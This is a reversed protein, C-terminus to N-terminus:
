KGGRSIWDWIDLLVARLTIGAPWPGVAADLVVATDALTGEHDRDRFHKLLGLDIFFANATIHHPSITADATISGSQTRRILADATFHRPVIVADATFRTRLAIVADATFGYPQANYCLNDLVDNSGTTTYVYLEDTFGANGQDLAGSETYEASSDPTGQPKILFSYSTEDFTTKATFWAATASPTWSFISGGNYARGSVFLATSTSPAAGIRISVGNARDHSDAHIRWLPTSNTYNWSSPVYFDFSIFGATAVPEPLGYVWGNENTSVVKSGNVQLQSNEVNTSSKYTVGTLTSPLFVYGDGLGASVSRSFDDCYVPLAITADATFSGGPFHIVADATFGLDPTTWLTAYGVLSDNAQGVFLGSSISFAAAFVQDPITELLTPAATPNIVPWIAAFDAPNEVNGVIWTGDLQNGYGYTQGPTTGLLIPAATPNSLDWLVPQYTGDTAQGTAYLSSVGFAFGDLQGSIAGFTGITGPVTVDWYVPFFHSGDFAYGVAITGTIQQISNVSTYSGMSLEVPTATPNTADWLVGHNNGSGDTATGVIYNGSVGSAFSDTQGVWTGLVTPAATPNSADWLAGHYSGDNVWGVVNDGDIASAVADTQGTIQGFETPSATPNSSDWLFAHNASDYAYGVIRTGQIGYAAAFQQSPITGLITVSM